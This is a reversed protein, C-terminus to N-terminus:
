DAQRVLSQKAKAQLISLVDLAEVFEKYEADEEPSLSGENAKQRLYEIRALMEGDAKLAVLSEAFERSMSDTVPDLMRDLFSATSM